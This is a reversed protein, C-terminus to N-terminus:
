DDRLYGELSFGVSPLDFHFEIIFTRFVSVCDQALGCVKM